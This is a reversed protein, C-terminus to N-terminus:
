LFINTVSVSIRGRWLMLIEFNSVYKLNQVCDMIKYKEFRMKLFLLLKLVHLYVSIPSYKAEDCVWLFKLHFKKEIGSFRM